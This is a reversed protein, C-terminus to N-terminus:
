VGRRAALRLDVPHANGRETGGHIYKVGKQMEIMVQHLQTYSQTLEAIQEAEQMMKAGLDISVCQGKVEFLHAKPSSETGHSPNKNVSQAQGFFFKRERQRSLSLCVFLGDQVDDEVSPSKPLVDGLCRHTRAHTVVDFGRNTLELVVTKEPTKGTPFDYGSDEFLYRM